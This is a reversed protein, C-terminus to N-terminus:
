GELQNLRTYFARLLTHRPQELAHEVSTLSSLRICRPAPFRGRQDTRPAAIAQTLMDKCIKPHPQGELCAVKLM